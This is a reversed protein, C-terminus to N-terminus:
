KLFSSTHLCFVSSGLFLELGTGCVSGLFLELMYRTEAVKLVSIILAVSNTPTQLSSANSCISGGDLFIHRM